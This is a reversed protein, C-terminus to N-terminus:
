NIFICYFINVLKIYLPNAPDVTFTITVMIHMYVILYVENYYLFVYSM